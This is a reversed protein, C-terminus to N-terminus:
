EARGSASVRASPASSSGACIRCTACPSPFGTAAAAAAAASGSASANSPGYRDASPGVLGLRHLRRRRGPQRQQRGRGGPCADSPLVFRAALVGGSVAPRHQALCRPPLVSRRPGARGPCAPAPGPRHARSRGGARHVAVGQQGAARRACPPRRRRRARLVSCCGSISRAAAVAGNGRTANSPTCPAASPSRWDRRARGWAGTSPMGARSRSAPTSRACRAASRTTRASASPAASRGDGRAARRRSPPKSACPSGGWCAM